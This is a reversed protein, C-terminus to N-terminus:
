LHKFEWVCFTLVYVILKVCFRINDFDLALGHYQQLTSGVNWWCYFFLMYVFFMRMSLYHYQIKLLNNITDIPILLSLLHTIKLRYKM